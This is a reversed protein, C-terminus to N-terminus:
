AAHQYNHAVAYYSSRVRPHMIDELQPRWCACAAALGMVLVVKPRPDLPGRCFAIRLTLALGGTAVNDVYRM